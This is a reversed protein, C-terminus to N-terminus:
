SSPLLFPLIFILLATLGLIAQHGEVEQAKKGKVTEEKALTTSEPARKSDTIPLQVGDAPKEELM